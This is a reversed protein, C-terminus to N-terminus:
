TVNSLIRKVKTINQSDKEIKYIHKHNLPTSEIPSGNILLINRDNAFKLIGKVNNPHLRGIEDMMCHLRFDKFRKSAGKKFVNLLMINVMAKVLVDTGGSGVNSLKEVWGTNNQNEEVRFKLEFSDSLSVHDRRSADIEKVLQKLLEIARKNNKEWNQTSFLTPKGFDLTNKDNFEKILKLVVVVNNASDDVRLEIKKVAGVFNREIFDNNIKRVIKQIEGAKSILETTEKGIATIISAFRENVRKEYESIKDEEIFDMLEESFNMYEDITILNTKFNFLNQESFNGLFKNIAEKLEREQNIKEYHADKIDEIISKCRRHTKHNEDVVTMFREVSPYTKSLKFRSFEELDEKITNLQRKIDRILNKIAELEKNLSRDLHNYKQKVQEFQQELLQKKNKFEKVKDFLERKDKNYEVVKDRNNEIFTLEAKIGSLQKDIATLRVTDAGKKDLEQKKQLNVEEKRKSFVNRKIDIETDIQKTQIKVQNQAKTISNDRERKKTKIKREIQNEIESIKNKADVAQEKANEIDEKIAKLAQQKETKAKEVLDKLNVKAQRDKLEAQGTQYETERILDKFKRIRPQNRKKIRNLHADRKEPLKFKREELQAIEESLKALEYEYDAIANTTTIPAIDDLNIKIGYFNEGYDTAFEPSLGGKFLIDEDCVKGITDEWKPHNHNLWGFFSEKSNEIKQKITETKRQLDSIKEELKDRDREFKEEASQKELEWKKQITEIQEGSHVIKNKGKAINLEAESISKNLNKIENEYFRRHEIETKQKELSFVFEQKEEFVQKAAAVEKKHYGRIKEILKEYDSAIHDKKHHFDQQLNLKEEKKNNLYNNFQNELQTLIAEYKQTIEFFKSSLLEKEKLLDQKEQELDSKAAVRKIIKFINIIKYSEDKTKAEKLKNNIVSIEGSFRDKRKQFLLKEKEIKEEIAKERDEETELKETLQPKIIGINDFSWVLQKAFKEKEKELHRIAIFVNAANHAHRQISPYRFKRIDTLQTEFDTLHHAYNQLNITIEEENMSMIITQKIFDAELKSNLFVNQITRPINKYQKSEILAYKKFKKKGDNNGYIIDRYEEYANIKSSYDVRDVDLMARTKGWSDFAKGNDDIFYKKNYAGDIFRFCVRNQSKSAFICYAGTEKQVEYIIFSNAYPFYWETFRKNTPGTPVGLKRQDANYFYLIARLITSKGVGQTGIFHVNGNLDITSYKIAASNIFVVKNLYRM